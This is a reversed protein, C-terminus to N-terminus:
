SSSTAQGQIGSVNPARKRFISRASTCRFTSSAFYFIIPDICTNFTSLLLTYYRWKPSEKQFYGVVHSINYPVVCILFVALTGLAMGIAKQKQMQSIRPRSYLILICSMYCYVCILLPILCLVFFFELRVPLLIDLQTQTFNEYCLERSNNSSLSPHHQTIFTISCHAASIIWIVASIIIAYVPKHLQHYTIPFAVGIYRVVSIYVGNLGKALPRIDGESRPATANNQPQQARAALMEAVLDNDYVCSLRDVEPHSRLTINTNCLSGPPPWGTWGRSYKRYMFVTCGFLLAIGLPMLVSLLVPLSAVIITVIEEHFKQTTKSDPNIWVYIQLNNDATGVNDIKLTCNGEAAKGMTSLHTMVPGSNPLSTTRNLNSITLRQAKVPEKQMIQVKVLTQCAPARNLNSITTPHAVDAQRLVKTNVYIDDGATNSVENGDGNTSHQRQLVTGADGNCQSKLLNHATRQARIVLLLACLLVLLTVVTSILVLFMLRCSIEATTSVSSETSGGQKNYRATCSIEKGHHLHSATFTLVSTKVKTKDPKEQLTEQSDGLSSTWTLTPPQTLCPAPASCTLNVSSGEKPKLTSPTLTPQLLILRSIPRNEATVHVNQGRPKTDVAKQRTKWLFIVCIICIVNVILSIAASVAWPLEAGPGHQDRHLSGCQSGDSALLQHLNHQFLHLLHYSCLFDPLNWKMGSAAEHMKLPLIMLFLLDSVTLNLLLIDTPLPRSHIKVIFACLALLNAPLGILFSIIYVSLIVESSVTYEMLVRLTINTNCLSGPPPRDRSYKRYMFVTCGFLLAIGLPMLVSLLVPLSSFKPMHKGDHMEGGALYSSGLQGVDAADEGMTRKSKSRVNVISYIVDSGEQNKMESTKSAREAYNPGSNPLSTSNLNSITTPHAVDAQRLVKTNVYIDDGATNSVENGDGNTSHQRQLVTGADGNCQSKLLNHATRQARIVLLLACLLVLLTVVTSILVLFMLRGHCEGSTQPELSYVYFRQTASGLSNSSRCLLTSLDRWQPPSVSILSLGRDNLPENTIAVKDSHNVPLGDLYWQLTPSPNGVTECSCNLQAATKTCDSSSLIQPAFSIEATTSVSSESSGGQKNYRATCSIEKGHHLHSATFTLVSTKVKTKDPKEQPTEQSDGLSSTWTLTPPQTLCPAPASCTLIVSSGEKPKLTSPTLTPQLLILSWDSTFINQQKRTELKELTTTCDKVTLDGAPEYKAPLIDFSCPITVCSGSLAEITQPMFVEFKGCLGGSVDSVFREIVVLSDKKITIKCNQQKASIKTGLGLGISKDSRAWVNIKYLCKQNQKIKIIDRNFLITRPLSFVTEAGYHLVAFRHRVMLAQTLLKGPTFNGQTANKADLRAVKSEKGGSPGEAIVTYATNKVSDIALETYGLDERDLWDLQTQDGLASCMCTCATRCSQHHLSAVDIPRTPTISLYGMWIGSYLPLLIESVTECSCNLQAATKTCDSSSLIQPAFQVDIQSINSRGAGLDNEAVCFLHGSDKFVIVKLVAGTGMFTEQGGDARYWTYNTVAPNATSSCTLTVVSNEAVPGSPSVSVTTRKPSDEDARYWTYNTVAPNATSSCTLTVTSNEAVPGSPSVSVTTRKPSYSINLTLSRSNALETSGDQKVYTATCSIEKGHHLHSATFTLVSTKVKTKDPKEQLTEQSDGLSSTWTLTPPQTLCPAPASCTLNVSSGEKAKLTSPTLTPTPPDARILINVEQSDKKFSFKLDNCELRFYYEHRNDLAINNLTTTCDKETLIGRLEGNGQVISNFVVNENNKNKWIAKCTDDLGGADKTAIDFSCPITVCSGNLVEISEPTIVKYVQCLAGKLLCAILLLNLAGSM